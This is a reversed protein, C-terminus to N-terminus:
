RLGVSMVRKSHSRRGNSNFAVGTYSSTATRFYPSVYDSCWNNCHKYCNGTYGSILFGYYRSHDCILLQYSYANNTGFGDWLGYTGAANGYNDAATIAQNVRRRFYVKSGTQHDVFIIETFSINNCNTRYGDSGYPFQVSYTVETKPKVYEDTTYCMTWGGNYSTMDCYALFANSHSGGGPDLLYLGDGQSQGRKVIHQCDLGIECHKGIFGAACACQYGGDEYKAVCPANNMCPNSSCPTPISFHHYFPSSTFNDSNNFKDSPLLECLLKGNIDSFAALNYSFCSTIGLCAFGCETDSQVLESGINTINLYSFEYANFNIFSVADESSSRRFGNIFQSGFSALVMTLVLCNKRKQPGLEM